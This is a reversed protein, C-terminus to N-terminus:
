HEDEYEDEDEYGYPNFMENEEQNSSNELFIVIARMILMVGIAGSIFIIAKM